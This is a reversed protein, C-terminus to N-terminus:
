LLSAFAAVLFAAIGTTGVMSKVVSSAAGTPAAGGAATGSADSTSGNTSSSTPSKVAVKAAAAKYLALTREGEQPANIAMVMGKQCHDGTACYMWIPKTDNIMITFVKMMGNEPPMPGSNIGTVNSM